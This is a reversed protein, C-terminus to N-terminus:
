RHNTMARAHSASELVIVNGEEQVVNEGCQHFTNGLVQNKTCSVPVNNILRDTHCHLDIGPGSCPGVWNKLYLQNSSDGGFIGPGDIEEILNHDILNPERSAELFIGGQFGSVRSIRNRTARSGKNDWDLWIGCGGTIDEIRNDAVLCQETCLLKIGACEYYYEAEQWGCDHIHNNTVRTATVHLCRMGATGCHHIHNRRILHHGEGRYQWDTREPHDQQYEFPHDGFELGSSNCESIDCDEIVWYSGGRTTVAGTSARLFGNACHAFHLGELAIYNLGLRQPCFLHPQVALELEAEDPHAEGRPHLMIRREAQDVWFSGPVRPVDGPHHLQMLRSGDQFLMVRPLSYPPYEQVPEMWKMLPIEGPLVNQLTLADYGAPFLQQPFSAFWTHQSLAPLPKEPGQHEPEWPRPRSWDLSLKVSGRIEVKEGPVAQYRIMAEPGSGGQAPRVCERYVGEHIRILTGPVARDSAAQLTRLPAEQTGSHEDSANPHQPHVVLTHPYPSKDRWEPYTPWNSLLESVSFTNQM